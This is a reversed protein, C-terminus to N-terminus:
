TYGEDDVVPNDASTLRSAADYGYTYNGHETNKTEINGISDYTYSYDLLSNSTPDIVTFSQIRMLPDYGYTRQTGGPYTMTAPRNWTYNPITISGVSPIQISQLENNTGYTYTYQTGDPATFAHKLGNGYYTYAFQKTFPGYNVTESLKRGMADYAYTASTTGDNYGALNGDDDYSLTV